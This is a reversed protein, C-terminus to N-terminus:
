IQAGDDDLDTNDKRPNDKWKKFAKIGERISSFFQIKEPEPPTFGAVEEGRALIDLYDTPASQDLSLGSVLAHFKEDTLDQDDEGPNREPKPDDSTPVM